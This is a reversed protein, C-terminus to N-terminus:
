CLGRRMCALTSCNGRGLLRVRECRGQWAAVCVERKLLCLDLCLPRYVRVAKRGNTVSRKPEPMTHQQRNSLTTLNSQTGSIGLAGLTGCMIDTCPSGVKVPPRGGGEGTVSMLGSM